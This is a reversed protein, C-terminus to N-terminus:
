GGINSVGQRLLTRIQLNEGAARVAQQFGGDMSMRQATGVCILVHLVRVWACIWKNHGFNRYTVRWAGALSSERYSDLISMVAAPSSRTRTLVLAVLVTPSRHTEYQNAGCAHRPPGGGGGGGSGGPQRGSQEYVGQPWQTVPQASGPVRITPRSPWPQLRVFPQLRQPHLAIPERLAPSQRLL